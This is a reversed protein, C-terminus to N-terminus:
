PVGHFVFNLIFKDRKAQRDAHHFGQALLGTLLGSGHLPLYEIVQLLCQCFPYVSAATAEGKLLGDWHRDKKEDKQSFEHQM